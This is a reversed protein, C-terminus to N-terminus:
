NNYAAKLDVFREVLAQREAFTTRTWEPFAVRAADIAARPSSFDIMVDCRELGEGIDSTLKVGSPSLGAPDAADKGLNESDSATLAVTLSARPEARLARIIAGGMRGEAGLVGIEIIDNM